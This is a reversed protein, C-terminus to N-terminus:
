ESADHKDKLGFHELLIGASTNATNAKDEFGHSKLGRAHLKLLSVCELVILEALKDARSAIDPTTFGADIMLQNLKNNM